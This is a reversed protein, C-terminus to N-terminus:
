HGFRHTEAQGSWFAKTVRAYKERIDKLENLKINPDDLAQYLIAGEANQPVPLDALHCITPIIDILWVTRELIQHKKVGPGCMVFLGKMSGVGYEVTPLFNGHEHGFEPNLAYVIDGIRDGYLGLIRADERKLALAIPKKGTKPDTFNYLATIIQEVVQEYEQGPEVIGNPDRGKVNVYIYCVRQPYAKTQTWDIEGFITHTGLQMPMGKVDDSEKLVTLGKEILIDAVQFEHTTAKAGHDSVLIILTEENACEIISGIMRDLSQYLALELRTYQEVEERSSATLPDLNVSFTHYMWDPCHAHMSFIDWEKNNLLYTVADKVWIHQFETIELFTDHDIWGLLLPVYGDRPMPLGKESAIESAISAPYSWGTVANIITVYMKFHKGDGSLELLKCKFAGNMVGKSTTFEQTITDSWDGVSLSAFAQDVNKSESLIVKDYGKGQTNQLLIYWSKPEIPNAAPQPPANYYLEIQAELSTTDSLNKWGHASSFEIHKAFPYDETCFLQYSALTVGKRENHHPYRWSNIGVGGGGIVIGDKIQPPWTAPWDFIISKKGVKEAANWVTEARNDRSDFGDHIVDLPDGPIHVSYGTIGHTGPWAGTAIATWNSSTITPYPVLCNKAYVGEEILKKIIPLKGDKAYNYVTATLPADLGIIMVKKVRKTM